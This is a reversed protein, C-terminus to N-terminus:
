HTGLEIGFLLIERDVLDLQELRSDFAARAESRQRTDTGLPPTLRRPESGGTAFRPPLSNGKSHASDGMEGASPRPSSRVRGLRRSSGSMVRVDSRSPRPPSRSTGARPTPEFSEEEDSVACAIGGSTVTAGVTFLVSWMPLRGLFEEIGMRVEYVGLVLCAVGPFLLPLAGELRSSAGERNKEPRPTTVVPRPRGHRWEGAAALETM